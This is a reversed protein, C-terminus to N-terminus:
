ANERGNDCISILARKILVKALHKRYMVSGRINSATRVNEQVFQSFKDIKEATLEGSLIQESDDIIVARHPTAGIVCTYRNNAKSVAVTIVPFDTKTMRHSLYVCKLDGLKPVIIRVLIDNDYPMKAFKSIAMKGAHHLEVQANLAMFITLVDSFGYRGFISGGVTALNRFQVGVIHRMAEKMANQSYMNLAPNIELDRLTVMAGIIFETDTEEIKDLGLGSLDIATGVNGKQMKLWLMGGIIRNMKKKNLDYAEDLSQVKRYERITLM